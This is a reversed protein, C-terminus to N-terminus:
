FLSGIFDMVGPLANDKLYDTAMGQVMNTIAQTGQQSSKGANAAAGSTANSLQENAKSAGGLANSRITAAQEPAKFRNIIEQQQQTQTNLNAQSQANQWNQQAATNLRGTNRNSIDARLATGARSQTDMQNARNLQTNLDLASLSQQQQAGQALAELQGRYANAALASEQQQKLNIADSVAKAKLAKSVGSSATGTAQANQSIAANQSALDAMTKRDMADMAQEMEPTMGETSLKKYQELNGLIARREEPTMQVNAAESPALTQQDELTADPGQLTNYGALAVQLDEPRIGALNNYMDYLQRTRAVNSEDAAKIPTYGAQDSLVNSIGNLLASGTESGLFKKRIDDNKFGTLRKDADDAMAANSRRQMALYEDEGSRLSALEQASLEGAM